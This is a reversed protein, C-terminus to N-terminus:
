MARDPRPGGYGIEARRGLLAGPLLEAGDVLLDPGAAELAERGGIGWTVACTACGAARGAAVDMATDGVMWAATPEVGLRDLVARVVAPDPKHPIDDCGQVVAFHRSLDLQECVRVAQRTTKTTAIALRVPALRELCGRVGPYLASSRACNEFYFRRYADVAEPLLAARDAPLWSRFIADLPEGIRPVIEALRRPPCGIGALAANVAAAIDDRSDVLTGDLDFIVLEVRCPETPM